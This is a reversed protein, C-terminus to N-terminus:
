SSLTGYTDPSAVHGVLKSVEPFFALMRLSWVTLLSKFEVWALQYVKGIKYWLFLHPNCM